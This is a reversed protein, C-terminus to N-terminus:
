LRLGLGDADRLGDADTVIPPMGDGQVPHRPRADRADLDGHGLGEGRGTVSAKPMWAMCGPLNAIKTPPKGMSTSPSTTPPTPILPPLPSCSVWTPSAPTPAKRAGGFAPPQFLGM